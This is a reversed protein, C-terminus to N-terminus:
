TRWQYPNFSRNKTRRARKRGSLIRVARKDMAEIEGMELAWCAIRFADVAHSTWDHVPKKTEEHRRWDMLSIIGKGCGKESFTFRKFLRRMLEIDSEISKTRPIVCFELGMKRAHDVTTM